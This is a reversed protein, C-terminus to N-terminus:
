PMWVWKSKWSGTSAVTRRLTPASTYTTLAARVGTRLKDHIRTLTAVDFYDYKIGSHNTVVIVLYGAENLMRVAEPVYDYIDFLDPDACYLIDSAITDNRDVFVVRRGFMEREVIGCITHYACLYNKQIRSTERSLIIVAHDSIERRRGGDGIFLITIASHEKAAEMALVVNKFNSSTFMGIVVDDKMWITEIQRKFVPNYSYDNRIAIVPAINSLCVGPLTPRELM